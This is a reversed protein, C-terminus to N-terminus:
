PSKLQEPTILIPSGFYPTRPRKRPWQLRRAAVDLDVKFYEFWKKEIIMEHYGLNLGVVPLNQLLREDILLSLKAYETAYQRSRGDYGTISIRQNLKKLPIDLRATLQQLFEKNMVLFANAETDALSNFTVGIGNNIITCPFTFPEGGILQSFDIENM